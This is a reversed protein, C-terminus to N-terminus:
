KLKNVLANQKDLRDHLPQYVDNFVKKEAYLIEVEQQKEERREKLKALEVEL